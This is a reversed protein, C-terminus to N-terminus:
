LGVCSARHTYPANEEAKWHLVKNNKSSGGSRRQSKSLDNDVTGQSPSLDGHPWRMSKMASFPREQMMVGIAHKARRTWGQCAM